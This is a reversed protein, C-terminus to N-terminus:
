VSGHRVFLRKPMSMYNPMLWVISMMMIWFCVVGVRMINGVQMAVPDYSSTPQGSPRDHRTATPEPKTMAVSVGGQSFQHGGHRAGNRALCEQSTEASREGRSRGM